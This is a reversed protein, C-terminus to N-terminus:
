AGPELAMQFSPWPATSRRQWAPLGEGHSTVALCQPAQPRQRPHPIGNKSGFSWTGITLPAATMTQHNASCARLLHFTCLYYVNNFLTHSWIFFGVERTFNTWADGMSDLVKFAETDADHQWLEMSVEGLEWTWWIDLPHMCTLNFMIHLYDQIKYSESHQM